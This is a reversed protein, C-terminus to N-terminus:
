AVGLMPPVTPYDGSVDVLEQGADAFEAFRAAIKEPTLFRAEPSRMANVVARACADPGQVALLTKFAKAYRGAVPAFSGVGMVSEHAECLPTLWTSRPEPDPKPTPNKKGKAARSSDKEETSEERKEIRKSIVKQKRKALVESAPCTEIFGASLLAELDAAGAMHLTRGVWAPDMPVCNDYRSAVLLLGVALWKSADQLRMLDDDELIDQYLKVWPPRREKYHQYKELNRVRFYSQESM